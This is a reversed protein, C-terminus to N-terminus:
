FNKWRMYENESNLVVDQRQGTINLALRWETTVAGHLTAYLWWSGRPVMLAASGDKDLEAKLPAKEGMKQKLFDEFRVGTRRESFFERESATIDIPYFDVPIKLDQVPTDVPQKLHVSVLTQPLRETAQAIAGSDDPIRSYISITAWVLAAVLGIRLIRLVFEPLRPEITM